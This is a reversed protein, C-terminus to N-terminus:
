TKFFSPRKITPTDGLRNAGEHNVELLAGATAPELFASGCHRCRVRSRRARETWHVMQTKSCDLCIYKRRGNLTQNVAEKTNINVSKTPPLDLSPLEDDSFVAHPTVERPPGTRKKAKM